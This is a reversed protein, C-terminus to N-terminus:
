HSVSLGDLIREVEDGKLDKFLMNEAEPTFHGAREGLDLMALMISGAHVRWNRVVDELVDEPQLREDSHFARANNSILRELQVLAAEHLRASFIELAGALARGLGYSSIGYDKERVILRLQLLFEAANMPLESDPTCKQLFRLAQALAQNVFSAEDETPEDPTFDKLLSRETEFLFGVRASRLLFADRLRM